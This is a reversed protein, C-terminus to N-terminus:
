DEQNNNKDTFITKLLYPGKNISNTDAIFVTQINNEKIKLLVVDTIESGIPISEENNLPIKNQLYRGM